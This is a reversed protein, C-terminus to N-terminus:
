TSATSSGSVVMVQIKSASSCEYRLGHRTSIFFCYRTDGDHRKLCPMAGVEVVDSLLTSDQPSLDADHKINYEFTNM